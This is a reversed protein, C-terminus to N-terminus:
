ANPSVPVAARAAQAEATKARHHPFCIVQHNTPDWFNGGDQEEIIHDVQTMGKARMDVRCGSIVCRRGDRRIAYDRAKRWRATRYRPDSM